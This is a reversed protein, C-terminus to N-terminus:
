PVVVTDGSQLLINQTLDHGRAVESYRFRIARQEGDRERHLITISNLAAYPTAGGALSLAQMVDLPRVFPYEGPRQVKGVVYVHNGGVQKVAVTVVPSPIYHKLREAIQARLQEVTKGVAVVEGVLPFSFAGDPRVLVDLQLDQEKWVSVVLLDGPQVLYDSFPTSPAQAAAEVSAGASPAPAVSAPQACAVRALVALAGLAFSLHWRRSM